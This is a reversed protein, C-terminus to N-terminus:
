SAIRLSSQVSGTHGHVVRRLFTKMAERLDRHAYGYVLVNLCASLMECQVISFSSIQFPLGGVSAMRLSLTVWKPICWMLFYVLVIGIVIRNFSVQTSRLIANGRARMQLKYKVVILLYSGIISINFFIYISAQFFAYNKNWVVNIQCREIETNEVGYFLFGPPILSVLLVLPIASAYVYYLNKPNIRHLKSVVNLRDMAVFHMSNQTVFDGYITLSEVGLCTFRWKIGDTVLEAILRVPINMCLIIDGLALLVLLLNFRENRLRKCRIVLFIIFGNGLSAVIFVVVRLAIVAPHDELPRELM